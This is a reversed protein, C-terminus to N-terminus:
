SAEPLLGSLQLRYLNRAALVRKGLGTPEYRRRKLGIREDAEAEEESAVFGKEEMRQLLVYVTGRKVSGGSAKVLELGYSRGKTILLELIGEETPTLNPLSLREEDKAMASLRVVQLVTPLGM